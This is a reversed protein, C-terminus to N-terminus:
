VQAESETLREKVWAIAHPVCQNGHVPCEPITALLRDREALLLNDVRIEEWAQILERELWLEYALPQVAPPLAQWYANYRERPTM